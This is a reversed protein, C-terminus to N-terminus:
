HGGSAMNLGVIGAVVLGLCALKALTVPEKFYVMGVTAILAVGAGAWVAYALGIDLRKTAQSLCVVSLLYMVVTAITPVLRTLGSSVKMSVAWGVEFLIALSMWLYTM